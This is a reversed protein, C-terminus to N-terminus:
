QNYPVPNTVPNHNYNGSRNPLSLDNPIHKEKQFSQNLPDLNLSFPTSRLPRYNDPPTANTHRIIGPHNQPPPHLLIGHDRQKPSDMALNPTNRIKLQM